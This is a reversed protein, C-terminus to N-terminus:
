KSFKHITSINAMFILLKKVTDFMLEQNNVSFTTDEYGINTGVIINIIPEDLQNRKNLADHVVLRTYDLFESSTIESKTYVSGFGANTKCDTTRIYVDNM